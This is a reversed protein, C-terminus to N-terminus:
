EPLPSEVKEHAVPIGLHELVTLARPLAHPASAAVQPSFYLFDDLYHLRDKIGAVKNSHSAVTMNSGHALMSSGYRGLSHDRESNRKIKM